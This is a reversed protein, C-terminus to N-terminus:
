GSFFFDQAGTPILEVENWPSYKRTSPLKRRWGLFLFGPRVKPILELENRPLKKDPQFMNQNVPSPNRPESTTQLGLFLFGPSGTPVLELENRPLKKRTSPNKKPNVRPFSIRPEGHSNNRARKPPTRKRTSVKKPNVRSFSYWINIHVHFHKQKRIHM